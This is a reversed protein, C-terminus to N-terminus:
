SPIFLPHSWSIIALTDAQTGIANISPPIASTAIPADIPLKTRTREPNSKSPAPMSKEPSFSCNCDQTSASPKFLTCSNTNNAIISPPMAM